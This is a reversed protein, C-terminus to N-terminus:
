GNMGGKLKKCRSPGPNAALKEIRGTIRATVSGPLRNLEKEASETLALRYSAV